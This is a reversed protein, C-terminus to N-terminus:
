SFSILTGSLNSFFVAAYLNMRLFFHFIDFIIRKNIRCISSIDNKTYKCNYLKPSQKNAAWMSRVILSVHEFLRMMSLFNPLFKKSLLAIEYNLTLSTM